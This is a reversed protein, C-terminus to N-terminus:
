GSKIRDGPENQVETENQPKMGKIARDVEDMIHNLHDRIQILSQGSLIMKAVTKGEVTSTSVGGEKQQLFLQAILNFDLFIFEFQVDMGVRSLALFNSYLPPHDYAPGEGQIQVTLIKQAPLSVTPQKNTDPM